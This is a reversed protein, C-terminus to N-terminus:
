QERVIEREREKETETWQMNFINEEDFSIEWLKGERKRGLISDNFSIFLFRFFFDCRKVVNLWLERLTDCCM